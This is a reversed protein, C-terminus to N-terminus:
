RGRRVCVCRDRGACSVAACAKVAATVVASDWCFCALGSALSSLLSAAAAAPVVPGCAALVQLCSAACASLLPGEAAEGSGGPGGMMVSDDAVSGGPSAPNGVSFVGSASLAGVAAAAGEAAGGAGCSAGEGGAASSANVLSSALSDNLGAGALVMSVSAASGESLTSAGSRGLGSASAAAAALRALAPGLMRSWCAVVAPVAAAVAAAMAPLRPAGGAAAASASAARRAASGSADGTAAAKAAQALLAACAPHRADLLHRTLLELLGWAGALAAGSLPAPRQGQPSVAAVLAGVIGPVAFGCPLSGVGASAGAAAAAAKTPAAAAGTGSGAAGASALIYRAMHSVAVSLCHALDGNDAALALLSWVHSGEAPPAQADPAAAAVPLPATAVANILRGAVAQLALAAVSAEPDLVSPLLSALWLRQVAPTHPEAALVGDLATLATKRVLVSPDTAKAALLELAYLGLVASPPSCTSSAPDADGAWAPAAGLRARQALAVAQCLVAVHARVQQSYSLLPEGGAPVAAAGAGAPGGAGGQAKAHRLLAGSVIVGCGAGPAAALAALAALAARKVAPKPEELRRVLLPILPSACALPRMSVGEGVGALGGSSVSAAGPSAGAGAGYSSVDGLTVDGGRGGAAGGAPGAAARQQQQTAMDCAALHTLVAAHLTHPGLSSVGGAAAAKPAQLLDTLAALARARVAPAKDSARHLLVSAAILLTPRPDACGGAEEEDAEEDWGEAGEEEEDGFLSAADGASLTSALSDRRGAVGKGGKGKGKGKGRGRRAASAAGGAPGYFPSSKRATSTSSLARSPPASGLGAMQLRAPTLASSGGSGEGEEEGVGMGLACISARRVRGGRSRSREPVAGAGAAAGQQSSSAADEGAQEGEEGAYGWAEEDYGGAEQAAEAPTPLPGEALALRLPLPCPLCAAAAALALAPGGRSRLGALPAYPSPSAPAGAGAAGSFGRGSLSAAFDPQPFVGGESAAAAAATGAASVEAAAAPVVPSAPAALFAAPVTPVPLAGLLRAISHGLGLRPTQGEGEGEEDGDGVGPAQAGEPPCLMAQAAEVAFLRYPAKSARSLRLLFRVFARRLSHPLLARLACVVEGAHARGEAKIGSAAVCLHQLLAAVAPLRALVHPPVALPSPSASNGEAGAEVASDAILALVLYAARARVVRPELRIRLLASAEAAAASADKDAASAAGKSRGSASRSVGGAAAAAQRGRGKGRGAGAGAGADSDDDSGDVAMGGSGSGTGTEGMAAAAAATQCALVTPNVPAAVQLLLPKLKKCLVRAATLPSGHQPSCLNLAAVAVLALLPLPASGSGSVSSAAHPRVQVRWVTGAQVAHYHCVEGEGDAEEEEEAGGGEAAAPAPGGTAISDPLTIAALLTDALLPLVEGHLRLSADALLNALDAVSGALLLTADRPSLYVGCALLRDAPPAAAAGTRASAASSSSAARKSRANGAAAGARHKRKRGAGDATGEESEEGSGEGGSEESYAEDGDEATGKRGKGKGAEEAEEAEGDGEEVDMAASAVGGAGSATRRPNRRSGAAAAAAAASAGSAQRRPAARGVGRGRAAARGTGATRRRLTQGEEEDALACLEVLGRLVGLCRRLLGADFVGYARAGPLRLLTLYLRAALVASRAAETIAAGVPAALHQLIRRQVFMLLAKHALPCASAIAEWLLNQADSSSSALEAASASSAATAQVAAHSYASLWRVLAGRAALMARDGDIEDGEGSSSMSGSELVLGDASEAAMWADFESSPIDDLQLGSLAAAVNTTAAEM